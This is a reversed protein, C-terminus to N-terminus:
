QAVERMAQQQAVEDLRRMERREEEQRHQRLQKERLNELVRVDRNAELLAQRRRGIETQVTERQRALQGQQMHLAVTYRQAEVLQDVNVLGPAVTKRCQQQLSDFEEALLDIRRKLVDDVRHAEALESRRQDRAAERVRLLTALRFTFKSM